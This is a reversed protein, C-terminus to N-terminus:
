TPCISVPGAQRNPSAQYGPPDRSIETWTKTPGNKGLHTIEHAQRVLRPEMGKLVVVRGDTIMLWGEEWETINTRSILIKEKEEWRCQPNEPHHFTHFM